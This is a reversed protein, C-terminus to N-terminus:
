PLVVKLDISQAFLGLVYIFGLKEIGYQFIVRKNEPYPDTNKIIDDINYTSEPYMDRLYKEACEAGHNFYELVFGDSLRSSTIKIANHIFNLILDVDIVIDNKM